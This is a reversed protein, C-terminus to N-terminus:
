ENSFDADHRRISSAINMMVLHYNINSATSHQPVPWRLQVRDCTSGTWETGGGRHQTWGTSRQNKTAAQERIQVECGSVPADTMMLSDCATPSPILNWRCVWVPWQCWQNSGEFWKPSHDTLFFIFSVPLPLSVGRGFWGGTVCSEQLECYVLPVWLAPSRLHLYCLSPLEM